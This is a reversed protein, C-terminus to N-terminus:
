KAAVLFKKYALPMNNADIAAVGAKFNANEKTQALTNTTVGLTILLSLSLIFMKFMKM